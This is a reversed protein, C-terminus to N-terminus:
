AEQIAELAGKRDEGDREAQELAELESESLPENELYDELEDITYDGPDVPPDVAVREFIREFSGPDDLEITEGPAVVTDGGDLYHDSDGVNRYLPM